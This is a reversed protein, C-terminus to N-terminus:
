VEMDRYRNQNWFLLTLATFFQELEEQNLQQVAKAAKSLNAINVYRGFIIQSRRLYREIALTDFGGRKALVETLSKDLASKPRTRVAEPIRGQLAQRVIFKAEFWPLPPLALLYEVVRVDFYPHRFELPAAGTEIDYTRTFLSPWLPASLNAYAEPRLPHPADAMQEISARWAEWREPLRGRQVFDPQFWFEFAPPRLRDRSNSHGRTLRTRLYLPPWRGTARRYDRLASALGRWHLGKVQDWLYNRSPYLAPDGGQGTLAVRGHEAMRRYLDVSLQWLPDALPQDVAWVPRDWGQFLTYGDADIVTLPLGLHDAVERAPFIEREKRAYHRSDLTFARLSALNTGHALAAVATSDLGGSMLISVRQASLRDQVARGLAERFHRVYDDPNKYRIEGDTPLIWYRRVRPRTEGARWILTHAPPLARIAAYITLSVDQYSGFLLFDAVADEDLADSIGPYRRLAGVSNSALFADATQAYYLPKVGFHDRAAFLARRRQDWLIFAFDGLLHTVCDEGWARYAHLILAEDSANAPVQEGRAALARRLEERADIRVDATIWLGAETLSALGLPTTDEMTRFLANGLCVPGDCWTTQGDPGRRGLAKMMSQWLAPTMPAGDRRLVALIGSM